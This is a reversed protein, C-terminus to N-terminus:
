LTLLVTLPVFRVHKLRVGLKLTTGKSKPSEPERLKRLAHFRFWFWKISNEELISLGVVNIFLIGFFHISMICRLAIILVFM